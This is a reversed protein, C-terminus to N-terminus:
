RLHLGGDVPVVCGTVYTNQVLSLCARAVDEPQGSRQLPARRRVSARTDDWDATWPTDILGPAIANICIEPGLTPALLATMHNLAAKSVAYPLSSGIPRLGALSSITVIHGGGVARLAPVAAQIMHWTGVVNVGLIAQWVEDTVAALDDFPILRTTGANNVVVDLRGFADVAADVLHRAQGQDAVDAQVYVADPLEAAVAMGQETSSRSNVVVRMGATAFCRAIAAGIGSSSGTVVAVRGPEAAAAPNTPDSATSPPRTM